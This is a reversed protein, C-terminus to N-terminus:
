PVTNALNDASISTATRASSAARKAWAGLAGVAQDATEGVVLDLDGFLNQAGGGDQGVLIQDLNHALAALAM